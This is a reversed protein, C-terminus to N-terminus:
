DSSILREGRAFEWTRAINLIDVEDIFDPPFPPFPAALRVIRIAADDLINKGSSRLVKIREIEGNPQIAVNLVLSGKINNKRAAEPYHLNGIKEVTKRWDDMYQAFRFERTNGSIYFERAGRRRYDADDAISTFPIEIQEESQKKETVTEVDAESQLGVRMTIDTNPAALAAVAQQTSEPEGELTHGREGADQAQQPTLAHANSSIADDTGGSDLNAQAMQADENPALESQTEVLIVQMTSEAIKEFSPLQLTFGVGLVIFVHALLSVLTALRM